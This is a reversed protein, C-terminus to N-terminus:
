ASSTSGASSSTAAARSSARPSSSASSRTAAGGASGKCVSWVPPEQDILELMAAYRRRSVEDSRLRWGESYGGYLVLHSVREPHRLALEIAPVAGQSIGLLVIPEAGGAVEVVEALDAAWRSQDLDGVEWDSMGCGREDYRVFRFHRSFFRIWHRWVPSEWELELHTLWNAAKVLTRGRGAEAWALRVGDSARLYRIAQRAQPESM